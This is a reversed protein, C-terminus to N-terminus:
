SGRPNSRSSESQGVSRSNVISRDISQGISRDIARPPHIKSKPPLDRTLNTQGSIFSPKHNSLFTNQTKHKANQTHPFWGVSWGVLWGVLWGCEPHISDISDFRISDFRHISTKWVSPRVSKRNRRKRACPTCQRIMFRGDMM